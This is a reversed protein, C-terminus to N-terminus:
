SDDSGGFGSDGGDDHSDHSEGSGRDSTFGGSDDTDPHDVEITTNHENIEPPDPFTVDTQPGGPDTDHVLDRGPGFVGAGTNPDVNGYVQENGPDARTLYDPEPPERDNADPEDNAGST